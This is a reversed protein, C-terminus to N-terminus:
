LRHTETGLLDSVTSNLVRYEMKSTDESAQLGLVVLPTNSELGELDHSTLFGNDRGLSKADSNKIQIVLCAIKENHHGVILPVDLGSWLPFFQSEDTTAELQQVSEEMLENLRKKWGEKDAKEDKWLPRQNVRQFERFAIALHQMPMLRRDRSFSGHSPILSQAVWGLLMFASVSLAGVLLYRDRFRLM